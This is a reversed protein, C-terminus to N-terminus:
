KVKNIFFFKNNDYYYEFYYLHYLIKKMITYVKLTIICVEKIINM